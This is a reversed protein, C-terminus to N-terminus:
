GAISATFFAALCFCLVTHTVDSQKQKELLLLDGNEREEEEEEEM